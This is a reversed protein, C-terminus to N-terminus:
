VAFVCDLFMTKMHMNQRTGQVGTSPHASLLSFRCEFTGVSLCLGLLQCIQSPSYYKSKTEIGNETIMSLERSNTELSMSRSCLGHSRRRTM